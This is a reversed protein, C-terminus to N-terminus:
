KNAKYHLGFWLLRTIVFIILGYITSISSVKVGGALMAQSVQGIEEIAIFAGYLGIMQGLVGTVLAMLGFSRVYELKNNVQDARLGRSFIDSAALVCFLLAALFMITLVTM